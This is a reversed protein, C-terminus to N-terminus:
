SYASVETGESFQVDLTIPCNLLTSIPCEEKARQAIEKIKDHNKRSGINAILHSGKVKLEEVTIECTVEIKDVEINEKEFSFRLAMAYCAAHASSVLEEPNTTSADGVRGKYTYDLSYAQRGSHVYGTGEKFSGEWHAKSHVIM